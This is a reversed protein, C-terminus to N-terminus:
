EAIHAQNQRANKSGYLCKARTEKARLRRESWAACCGAWVAGAGTSASCMAESYGGPRAVAAFVRGSVVHWLRACPCPLWAGM